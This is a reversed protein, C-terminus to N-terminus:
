PKAGLSAAVDVTAFTDELPFSLDVEEADFGDLAVAAADPDATFSV